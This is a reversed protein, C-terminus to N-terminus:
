AEKMTVIFVVANGSADPFAKKTAEGSRTFYLTQSDLAMTHLDAIAGTQYFDDVFGDKLMGHAQTKSDYCFTYNMEENEFGSYSSLWFRGVPRVPVVPVNEQKARMNRNWSSAILLTDKLLHDAEAPPNYVYLHGSDADMCLQPHTLAFLYQARGLDAFVLKHSDIKQFFTDYTVLEKEVVVEQTDPHVYTNEELSLIKNQQLAMSLIRRDDSNKLLKKQEILEGAYSYYFVDNTNGLVILENRVPDILYGAVKIQQTDTVQCVFRGDTQYRYLVDESILFLNNREKKIDRVKDMTKGHASQLPIATVEQAVDSLIGSIREKIQFASLYTNYGERAYLVVLVVALLLFTRKM